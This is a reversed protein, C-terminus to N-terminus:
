SFITIINTKLLFSTAPILDVWTWGMSLFRYNEAMKATFGSTEPGGWTASSRLAFTASISPARARLRALSAGRHRKGV